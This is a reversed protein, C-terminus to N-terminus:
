PDSFNLFIVVLKVIRTIFTRIQQFEKVWFDNIHLM